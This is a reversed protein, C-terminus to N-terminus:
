VECRPEDFQVASPTKLLSCLGKWFVAGPSTQARGLRKVWAGPQNTVEHTTLPYPHAQTPTEADHAHASM